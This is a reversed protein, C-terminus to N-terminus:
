RKQYKWNKSKGEAMLEVAQEIRRQRTTERKAEEIWEVYEKRHSYSFGEFVALAQKNKKLATFLDAPPKIESANKRAAKKKPSTKAKANLAVAEKIYAILTKDDPLDDISSAKCLSMCGDAKKEFIDANDAMDGARFFGYSVHKKFAAMSGVLGHHEFCPASWKITEEIDPCAKHYLKRLRKLIPQAFAAAQDIYADHNAPKKGM